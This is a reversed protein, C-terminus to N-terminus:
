LLVTTARRHILFIFVLMPDDNGRQLQQKGKNRGNDRGINTWWTSPLFFLLLFWYATEIALQFCPTNIKRAIGKSARINNSRSFYKEERIRHIIFLTFRVPRIKARQLHFRMWWRRRWSRLFLSCRILWRRHNLKQRKFCRCEISM